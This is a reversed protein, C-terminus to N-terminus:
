KNRQQKNEQTRSSSSRRIKVLEVTCLHIRTGLHFFDIFNFYLALSFVIGLYPFFAAGAGSIVSTM